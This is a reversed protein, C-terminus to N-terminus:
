RRGLRGRARASGRCLRPERQRGRADRAAHKGRLGGSGAIARLPKGTPRGGLRQVVIATPGARARVGRRARWKTRLAACARRQRAAGRVARRVLNGGHARVAACNARVSTHTSMRERAQHGASTFSSSALMGQLTVQPDAAYGQEPAISRRGPPLARELWRAARPRGQLMTCQGKGHVRGAQPGSRRRPPWRKRENRWPLRRPMSPASASCSVSVMCCTRCRISRSTTWCCMRVSSRARRRRASAWCRSPRAGRLTALAVGACRAGDGAAGSRPPDARARRPWARAPALQALAAEAAEAYCRLANLPERGREFHM